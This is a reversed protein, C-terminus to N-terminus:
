GRLCSGHLFLILLNLIALGAIERPGGESLTEM